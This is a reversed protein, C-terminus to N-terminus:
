LERIGTLPDYCHHFINNGEIDKYHYAIFENITWEKIPPIKKCEKDPIKKSKDDLKKQLIVTARSNGMHIDKDNNYGTDQVSDINNQVNEQTEVLKAKRGEVMSLWSNWPIFKETMDEAKSGLLRTMQKADKNATKINM